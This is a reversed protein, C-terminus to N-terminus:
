WSARTDLYESQPAEDTRLVFFGPKSRRTHPRSSCGTVAVVALTALTLSLRSMM